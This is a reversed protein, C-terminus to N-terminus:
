KINMTIQKNDHLYRILNKYRDRSKKDKPIISYLDNLSISFEYPRNNEIATRINADHGELFALDIMYGKEPKTYKPCPELIGSIKCGSDSNAKFYEQVSYM